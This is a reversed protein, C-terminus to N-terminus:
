IVVNFHMFEMEAPEPFVAAKERGMNSCNICRLRFIEAVYARTNTGVLSSATWTAALCALGFCVRASRKSHVELRGRDAKLRLHGGKHPVGRFDAVRSLFGVVSRVETVRNGDLRARLTHGHREDKLLFEFSAAVVVCTKGPNSGQVLKTIHWVTTDHTCMALSVPVTQLDM